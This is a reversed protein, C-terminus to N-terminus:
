VLFLNLRVMMHLSDVKMLCGTRLVMLIPLANKGILGCNTGVQRLSFVFPPGVFQLIM